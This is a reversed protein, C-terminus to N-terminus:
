HIYTRQFLELALSYHLVAKDYQEAQQYIAGLINQVYPNKPDLVALGKFIAKAQQLRGELFFNHGVLLLSAIQKADINFIQVFKLKGARFSELKSKDIGPM